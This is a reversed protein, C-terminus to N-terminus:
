SVLEDRARSGVKATEFLSVALEVEEFAAKALSSKPARIVAVALSAAASFSHFFFIWFRSVLPLQLKVAFFPRTPETGGTSSLLSLRHHSVSTEFSPSSFRRLKSSPSTARLSQAFLHFSVVFLNLWLELEYPM